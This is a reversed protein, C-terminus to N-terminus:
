YRYALGSYVTVYNRKGLWLSDKGSDFQHTTTVHSTLMWAPSFEWNWNLGLYANRVNADTQNQMRSMPTALSNGSSTTMDPDFRVGSQDYSRSSWALGASLAIGHHLELQHYSRAELNIYNSQKDAVKGLLFKSSLRLRALPYYNLFGGVQFSGDVDGYGALKRAASASCGRQYALLPGFEVRDFPSMHLGLNANRLFLGNSWQMQVNPMVRTTQEGGLECSPESIVGLGVYKDSSGDPLMTAAPTQAFVLQAVGSLLLFSISKM